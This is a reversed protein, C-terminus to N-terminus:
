WRGRYEKVNKEIHFVNGQSDQWLNQGIVTMTSNLFEKAERNTRYSAAIYETGNLNVKVLWKGYVKM